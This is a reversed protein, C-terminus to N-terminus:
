RDYPVFHMEIGADELDYIAEVERKIPVGSATTKGVNIGYTSGDPREVLIDPRRSSKIGGPTKISVEPLRQGGAIIKGDTVSDAVDKNTLNHSGTGFPKPGRKLGGAAESAGKAINGVLKMFKPSVKGITQILKVGVIGGGAVAGVIMNTVNGLQKGYEYVEADSPKGTWVNKSHEYLYKFPETFSAGVSSIIDGIKLEGSILATGFQKIANITNMSFLSILDDFGTMGAVFSPLFKQFFQGVAMNGSPDLYKLPNNLGYSYLNLTLPNNVQGEYSDENIFRGMQPDYYRARLYYLGTESDFIEGGYTFPNSTTETKDLINGWEDYSYNNVINGATDVIQVVDGHGNYLYYYNNGTATDKKVLTRDPGWVYDAKISGTGDGEAIVKGSMNYHYWVTKSPTSKKYRLGEPNYSISTTVSGKTAQTLRNRLDYSYTAPELDLTINGSLTQRNGRLDYTYSIIGRDPSNVEQLRDLKDYIYQTIKNSVSDTITTTNGNADYIYTYQSLVTTGKKNTITQLRNLKDYAYSTKLITSDSLTPYTVSELKGDPYYNYVAYAQGTPDATQAGNIQVKNLRTLTYTYNTYFYNAEDKGIANNKLRGLRDYGNKLYSRYTSTNPYWTFKEVIRGSGNYDYSISGSFSDNNYESIGNVGYAGIYAYRYETSVNGSSSVSKNSKIQNHEDYGYSFVSGNRDTMKTNLGLGNYAYTSSQAMPDIKSVIQGLEDYNRIYLGTSETAAASEKLKIDSMNGLINYAVDTIQGLADKVRSVRGLQDYTYKKTVGEDNLNRKPDTYTIVNGSIDYTYNESIAGATDPWNPFAKREIVRNWQDLSAEIYSEKVANNSPNARYTAVNGQAIFYSNVKRNKIDYDTRYLNNLSDTSENLRGWADYSYASPNNEADIYYVPRCLSDYRYQKGIVWQWTGNYDYWTQEQRLNGYGDYASQATNYYSDTNTLTDKYITYTYVVSSSTGINSPDVYDWYNVGDWYEFTQTVSYSNGNINSINPLVVSIIRGLNDYTYSTTRGSNNTETEILGLLMNYTRTTNEETYVGQDNTYYDKVIAPYAYNTSADYYLENKATKGNELLKTLMTKAISRGDPALTYNYNAVEGKANTISTIRQLSDYTYSEGLYTNDNQYWHKTSIFKCVPEYEYTTTYKTKINPDNLQTSNLPQTVSSMGGWDNYALAVYKQSAITGDGAYETYETKTPKQDFRVDYELNKVVKKEGNSATTEEQIQKKKGNYTSKATIGNSLAAQSWFQYSEPMAEDSNYNPYGSCDGNYTYNIHNIDGVQDWTSGNYKFEKDYRATVRYAHVAGDPGLNRTTKDYQYFSLTSPYQVGGLLFQADHASTSLNKTNYMFGIGDDAYDLYYISQNKPNTASYLYPEYFTDILQGGSYYNIQTRGKKYIISLNRSNAPDSVTVTINESTFTPNDITNEYVFSINRGVSDLINSIYPYSVGHITRGTHTFKIENGFRDKIGMLRGDSAFYTTKKDSSIFKYKSTVQGNSYSGNDESFLVDKGQYGKLNSDTTDATFTIQYAAGTGDHFTLFKNGQEEVIEVSPFSFSWGAGLDYRSRLYNYKEPYNTTTITYSSHYVPYTGSYIVSFIFVKDNSYSVTNNNAEEYTNYPGYSSSAWQATTLDFATVQVFWGTRTDTWSSSSSQVSVKKTCYEAQSSNYIRGLALDLGDKGPLSLDTQNLTLSGSVPDVLEAVNNRDALKPNNSQNVQQPTVMGNLVGQMAGIDVEAFATSYSCAIVIFSICFIKTISKLISKIM